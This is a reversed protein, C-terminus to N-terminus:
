PLLISRCIPLSHCFFHCLKEKCHYLESLLDFRHYKLFVFKQCLFTGEGARFQPLFGDAEAVKLLPGQRPQNQTTRKKKCTIVVVRPM